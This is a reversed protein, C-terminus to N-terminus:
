QKMIPAHPEAPLGHTVISWSKGTKKDTYWALDQEIALPAGASLARDIRDSWWEGYPYCNHADLLVRGGPRFRAAPQTQTSACVGLLPFLFVVLHIARKM